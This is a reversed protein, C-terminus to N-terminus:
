DDQSQRPQILEDLSPNTRTDTGFLVQGDQVAILELNIPGTTFVPQAAIAQIELAEGSNQVRELFQIVPETLGGAVLPDAIIVGARRAQFQATAILLRFREILQENTPSPDLQVGALREGPRFLVQNVAAEISVQICPPDEILQVCPEGVVYNGTSAVRIVYNQGDQIREVVREVAEPDVRLARKTVEPTGPLITQIAVRNAEGLAQDVAQRAEEDSTPSALRLWLTQNRSLAVNGQRLSEFEDELRTIEQTLFTQQTQLRSLRDEREAIERDRELLEQNLQALEQSRETLEQNRREIQRDREAIQARIQNQREILAQRESRLGGIESRLNEAQQSVGALQQQTNQLRATTEEERGVAVRLSENTERLRAQAEQQRETASELETEIEAKTAQAETLDDRAQALDEQIDDLEFLGKRLESSVGLLLALTSASVVSGTFVSVLTATQRPRLNFLTLRAKGVRMGIRDGVTAIVGGLLLVAVILIYGTPM